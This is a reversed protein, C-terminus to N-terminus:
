DYGFEFYFSIASENAKEIVYRRVLGKDVVEKV